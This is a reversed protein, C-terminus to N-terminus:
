NKLIELRTLQNKYQTAEPYDEVIPQLRDHTRAYIKEAAAPNSQRLTPLTKQPDRPRPPWLQSHGCVIVARITVIVTVILM